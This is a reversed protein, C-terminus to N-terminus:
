NLTFLGYKERPNNYGDLGVREDILREVFLRQSRSEAIERDFSEIYEHYDKESLDPQEQFIEGSIFDNRMLIHMDENDKFNQWLNKLQWIQVSIDDM